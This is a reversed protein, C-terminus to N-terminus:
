TKKSFEFILVYYLSNTGFLVVCMKLTQILWNSLNDFLVSKELSNSDFLLLTKEFNMNYLVSM